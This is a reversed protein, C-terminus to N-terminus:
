GKAVAKSVALVAQTQKVKERPAGEYILLQSSWILNFRKRLEDIIKKQNENLIFRFNPNKEFVIYKEAFSEICDDVLDSHHPHIVFEYTYSHSLDRKYAFALVKESDGADVFVFMNLLRDKLFSKSKFLCDRYELIQSLIDIEMMKKIDQSEADRCILKFNKNDSFNNKYEFCFNRNFRKFGHRNMISIDEVQHVEDLERVFYRIRRKQTFKELFDKILEDHNHEINHIEILNAKDFYQSYLICDMLSNNEFLGYYHKGWLFDKRLSLIDISNLQRAKLM